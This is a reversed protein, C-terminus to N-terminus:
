PRTETRCVTEVGDAAFTRFTIRRRCGQITTYADDWLTRAACVASAHVEDLTEGVAEASSSFQWGGEYTGTEIEVEVAVEAVEHQAMEDRRTENRRANYRTM